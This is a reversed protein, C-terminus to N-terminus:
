ALLARVKEAASRGEALAEEMSTYEWRGYRGIPVVGRTEISARIERVAEPREPTPIAYGYRLPIALRAVVQDPSDLLGARVLGDLVRADVDAPLPRHASHSVEVYLSSHEPPAMSPSFNHYFGVRYFVFEEGPFYAWHAASTRRALGLNLNYVSIWELRAAAARAEPTAAADAAVLDPLPISSVLARWAVRRGASTELTRGATDLAVVREGCAIEGAGRAREALAAAFAGCGGARPYLFRPNYGIEKELRGKLAARADEASPRPVYGVWDTALRELPVTWLKENYPRMFHRTIGPGFTTECWRGFNSRDPEAAAAADLGALCEEAVPPPLHAQFPYDTWIGKWHIKANRRHEALNAGLLDEVLARAWAGKLHLLHGTHDFTFGDVAHSRALGGPAAEAELVLARLGSGALGAAASLGAPGAGAVVVDFRDM